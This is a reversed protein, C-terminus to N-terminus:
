SLFVSPEKFHAEVLQDFCFIEFIELLELTNWFMGNFKVFIMTYGVVWNIVSGPWNYFWTLYISPEKFRAQVPWDFFFELVNMLRLSFWPIVVRDIVSGPWNCFWTFWISPGKFHARVPRVFCFMFGAQFTEFTIQLLSYLLLWRGPTNNLHAFRHDPPHAGFVSIFSNM